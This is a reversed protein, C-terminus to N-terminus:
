VSHVEDYEAGFLIGGRVLLGPFLGQRVLGVSSSLFGGMLFYPVVGLM